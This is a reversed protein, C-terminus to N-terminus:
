RVFYRILLFEIHLLWPLSLCFAWIIMVMIKKTASIDLLLNRQLTNEVEIAIRDEKDSYYYPPGEEVNQFAPTHRIVIARIKWYDKNGLEEYTTNIDIGSQEIENELKTNSRSYFFRYILFVPLVLLIYFGTIFATVTIIAISLLFFINSATGEENLFVRNLLQGGDLPFVPLLNLLNAWILLQAILQLPVDGLYLSPNGLCIFHIIIGLLIGPVPGALFIIASQQQSIEKKSGKVFAGIFPLFLISVDAYRFYRMAFFHGAEHLVVVGFIVLLLDWRRLLLYGIGLYLVISYLGKIFVPQDNPKVQPFRPPYTDSVVPINDFAPEM